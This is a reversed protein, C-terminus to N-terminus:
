SVVGYELRGILNEVLVAGTETELLELPALDELARNPRKLWSVAADADGEYLEVAHNYARMLRLLRDTESPELKGVAKRRAFTRSSMQLTKSLKGTDIALLEQAKLFAEFPAGAQIRKIILKPSEEKLPFVTWSTDKGTRATRKAKTAMRCLIGAM